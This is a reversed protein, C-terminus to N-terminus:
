LGRAPADRSMEEKLGQRWAELEESTHSEDHPLGFAKGESIRIGM